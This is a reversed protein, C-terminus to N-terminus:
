MVGGFVRKKEVNTGAFFIGSIVKSDIQVALISVHLSFLYSLSYEMVNLDGFFNEDVVVDAIERDDTKKICPLLDRWVNRKTGIGVEFSRAKVSPHIRM